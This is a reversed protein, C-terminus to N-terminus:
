ATPSSGGQQNNVHPIVSFDLPSWRGDGPASPRPEEGNTTTMLDGTEATIKLAGGGVASTAANLRVVSWQSGACRRYVMALRVAFAVTAYTNGDTGTVTV